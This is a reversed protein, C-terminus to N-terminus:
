NPNRLTAVVMLLARRLKAVAELSRRAAWVLWRHRCVAKKEDWTFKESEFSEQAGAVNSKQNRPKVMELHSRPVGNRHDRPSNNLINTTTQQMCPFGPPPSSYSTTITPPPITPAATPQPMPIHRDLPMERQQTSHISREMCRILTQSHPSSTKLNNPMHQRHKVTNDLRTVTTAKPVPLEGNDLSRRTAMISLELDIAEGFCSGLATGSWRTLAM